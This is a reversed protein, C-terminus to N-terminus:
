LKSLLKIHFFFGKEGMTTEHSIEITQALYLQTNM